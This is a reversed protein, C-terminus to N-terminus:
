IAKNTYIKFWLIFYMKAGTSKCPCFNIFINEKSSYDRSVTDNNM